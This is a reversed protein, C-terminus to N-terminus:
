FGFDDIETEDVKNIQIPKAQLHVPNGEIHIARFPRVPCVYECGGCGVCIDPNIKPITLGVRYPVMTVAQTPCHEACAGCNTNDTHVICNEEIFVVHGVQTLHKEEKTLPLIAKNPCIESCLTCDYNCFGNEFNMVPQLIGGVGYELLSPKLVHSPCKSVCLHCATCHQNFHEASISGPPSLPHEKKYPKNGTLVGVSQSMASKPATLAVATLTAVFTRKSIDPEDSSINKQSEKKYRM